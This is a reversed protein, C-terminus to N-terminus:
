ECFSYINQVFQHDTELVHVYEISAAIPGDERSGRRVTTVTLSPMWVNVGVSIHYLADGATGSSQPSLVMAFPSTRHFIYTMSSSPHTASAYSPLGDERKNNSADPSTSALTSYISEAAPLPSGWAESTSSGTSIPTFRPSQEDTTPSGEVPLVTVLPERGRFISFRRKKEPLPVNGGIISSVTSM